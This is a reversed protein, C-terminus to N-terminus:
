GDQSINNDVMFQEIEAAAAAAAAARRAAADRLMLVDDPLLEGEVQWRRVTRYTVGADRAFASQWRATGYVREALRNFATLNITTM